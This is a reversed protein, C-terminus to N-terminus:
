GWFTTRHITVERGAEVVPASLVRLGM